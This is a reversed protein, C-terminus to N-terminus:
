CYPTLNMRELYTQMILGSQHLDMASQVGIYRFHWPEYEYGTVSEQGQPYSLYFGYTYANALLWEGAASYAFGLSLSYGMESTTFDLATGLQHQSEGPKASFMNAQQEGYDQVYTNYISAQTTYSRYASAVVLYFGANTGAAILKQLEDIMTRRGIITYNNVPIAYDHLSVLDPPVYSAPLAHAKDVLVLLNSCTNSKKASSPSSVPTQTKLSTMSFASFASNSDQSTGAFLNTYHFAGYLCIGGIALLLSLVILCHTRRM